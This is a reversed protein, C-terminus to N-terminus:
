LLIDGGEWLVVERSESNQRQMRGANNWKVGGMKIKFRGSRIEFSGKYRRIYEGKIWDYKLEEVAQIM